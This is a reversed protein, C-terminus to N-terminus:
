SSDSVAHLFAGAMDTAPEAAGANQIFVAFAMGDRIGVFWGHGPRGGDDATGAIGALGDFDRLTAASGETVASRMMTRVSAATDDSVRTPPDDATGTMGTFLTPEVREGKNALSAAAVAMGFPSAVTDGQGIAAEVRAPGPDTDPVAGTTTTLGPTEYDAGLGLAEATDALDGTDLSGSLLALSTSCGAAVATSLPVTGLALDGPNDVTRGDATVQAPCDVADHPEADGPGLAAAATIPYFAAGPSYLGSLAVPGRRSAAANQAVALIGGDSPNIAVIAAPLKSADVAGQAALQVHADMTIPVNQVDEPTAAQVRVDHDDGPNDIDVSWGASKALVDHWMEPVGDLAPSALRRDATLLKGQDTLTVSPIAALPGRLPDADAPRLTVVTYSGGSGEQAADAIGAYVSEPTISRDIGHLLDALAQVDADPADTAISVVTVTQWSMLTNRDRGIVPSAYDLDQSYVLRGGPMLRSDLIHQSWPVKGGDLREITGTTETKAGNPLTWATHTTLTGRLSEIVSLHASAGQMGDLSRSLTERAAAPDDTFSAAQEVDGENVAEVFSEMADPPSGLTIDCASAAALVLVSLIAAASQAGRRRGPPRAPRIPM